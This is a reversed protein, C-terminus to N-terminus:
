TSGATEIYMRELEAQREMAKPDLDSTAPTDTKFHHYTDESTYIARNAPCNTESKVLSISSLM